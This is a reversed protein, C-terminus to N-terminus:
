HLQSQVAQAIPLLESVTHVDGVNVEFSWSGDGEGVMLAYDQKTLAQDEGVAWSGLGSEYDLPTNNVQDKSASVWASETLPQSWKFFYM